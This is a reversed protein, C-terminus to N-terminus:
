SRRELRATLRRPGSASNPRFIAVFFAPDMSSMIGWLVCQRDHWRSTDPKIGAKVWVKLALALEHLLRRVGDMAEPTEAEKFWDLLVKRVETRAEAVTM